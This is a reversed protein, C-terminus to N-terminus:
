ATKIKPMLKEVEAEALLDSSTKDKLLKRSMTLFIQYINIYIYFFM